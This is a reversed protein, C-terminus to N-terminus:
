HLLASGVMERQESNGGSLVCHQAFLFHQLPSYFALAAKFLASWQFAFSGGSEM